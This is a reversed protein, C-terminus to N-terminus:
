YRFLYSIAIHIDFIHTYTNIILIFYRDKFIFASLGGGRPIM